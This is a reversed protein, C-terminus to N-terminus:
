PGFHFAVTALTTLFGPDNFVGITQNWRIDTGLSVLNGIPVDFGAGVNLGGGSDERHTTSGFLKSDDVTGEYWGGQGILWPRVAGSRGLVYYRGGVTVSNFGMSRDFLKIDAATQANAGVELHDTFAYGVGIGLAPGAQVGDSGAAMAGGAVDIRIRRESEAAHAAVSACLVGIAFAIAAATGPRMPSRRLQGITHM